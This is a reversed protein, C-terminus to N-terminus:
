CKYILAKAGPRTSRKPDPSKAIHNPLTHLNTLIATRSPSARSLIPWLVVLVWRLVPKGPNLLLPQLSQPWVSESPPRPSPRDCWFYEIM